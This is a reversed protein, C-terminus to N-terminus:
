SFTNGIQVVTSNDVITGEIDNRVLEYNDFEEAHTDQIQLDFPECEHYTDDNDENSEGQGVDYVDRAKTHVVAVWNPNRDDTVYYVQSAQYSLIFPDDAVNDGVHILHTFNVLILGYEDKMWGRGRTVDAWNSKFLVYRSGDYYQVEFIRTLVGYYTPGDIGLVSVGSNQTTKGQDNEITRFLNGNSVYRKFESATRLPGIAHWKLNEGLENLRLEDMQQVQSIPTM